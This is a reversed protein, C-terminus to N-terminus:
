GPQGPRGPQGGPGPAGGAGGNVAHIIADAHSTAANPLTTMSAALLTGVCVGLAVVYNPRKKFNSPRRFSSGAM